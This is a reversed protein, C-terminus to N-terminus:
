PYTWDVDDNAWPQLLATVDDTNDRFGLWRSCRRLAAELQPDNSAQALAVLSRVQRASIAVTSPDNGALVLVELAKNACWKRIQRETIAPSGNHRLQLSITITRLQKGFEDPPTPTRFPTTPGTLEDTRSGCDSARRRTTASASGKESPLQLTLPQRFAALRRRLLRCGAM